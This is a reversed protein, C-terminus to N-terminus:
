SVHKYISFLGNLTLNPMIKDIESVESSIIDAIGGTSIIIPNTLEKKIMSIIEKIQGINGYYIGATIHEITNKGIISRPKEFRVKPLKSTNKFLAKISLNIGPLICGGIYTNNKMIDFTTATGFDIVVLNREPYTKTAEFVNVLRDAGLERPNDVDFGIDLKLESNIIIPYINFYKKSLYVFIDTLNPVVSAIVTGKINELKVNHFDSINKLYSFFQDETLNESSSIRFNLLLKGEDSFVGTVTHTNGIDFALIM